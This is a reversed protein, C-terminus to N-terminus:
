GIRFRRLGAQGAGCPLSPAVKEGQEKWRGQPGESMAGGGPLQSSCQGGMDDSPVSDPLRLSGTGEKM